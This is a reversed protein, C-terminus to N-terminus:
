YAKAFIAVTQTAKGTSVCKGWDGAANGQPDSVSPLCRLTAGTRRQVSAEDQDSGAWWVRAWQAKRVKAQPPTLDEDQADSPGPQGWFRLLEDMSGM